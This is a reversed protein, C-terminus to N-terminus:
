TILSSSCSSRTKQFNWAARVVEPEDGVPVASSGLIIQIALSELVKDGLMEEDFTVM